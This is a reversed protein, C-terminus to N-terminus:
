EDLQDRPIRALRQAIAHEDGKRSRLRLEELDDDVTLDAARTPSGTAEMSAQEKPAIGELAEQAGQKKAEETKGVLKDKAMKAAELFSLQQNGYDKPNVMSDLMLRRTENHLEKDHKEGKPDLEPYSQYVERNEQDAQLQQLGREARAAREKAERAERLAPDEYPDDQQPSPPLQSASYLSELYERQEREQRLDERLKEFERRTRESANDPLGEQVQQDSQQGDTVPPTKQEATPVAADQTTKEPNENGTQNTDAM